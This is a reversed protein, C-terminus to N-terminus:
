EEKDFTAVHFRNKARLCFILLMLFLNNKEELSINDVSSRFSMSNGVVCYQYVPFFLNKLVIRSLFVLDIKYFM